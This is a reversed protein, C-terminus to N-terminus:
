NHWKKVLNEVVEPLELLDAEFWKILKNTKFWTLQRKSYKVESIVWNKVDPWDKYGPTKEFIIKEGYKKILNKYEEEFGEKIRKEVRKEIREKLKDKNLKLGIWLLDFKNEQVQVQVKNKASAIEIKRVLRVKNNKDSNNLENFLRLNLDKLIVQLEDVSKKSLEERLKEDKSININEFNSFLANIYLGTGGVIIPLKNRKLIDEIVKLAYERYHSVSFDENPEVLDIGWYPINGYESLDKGTGINMEKYVQRSDASIIEGNFKHALAIALNTKGTATQGCVILIKNKM